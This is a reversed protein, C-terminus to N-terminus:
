GELITVENNKKALHLTDFFYRHLFVKLDQNQYRTTVDENMLEEIEKWEVKLIETNDVQKLNPTEKIVIPYYITNNIRKFVYSKQIINYRIGTEEFLERSACNSYVRDKEEMHGKPLGWQEFGYKEYMSKNCVCLVKTMDENFAIVGCRTDKLSLKQSKINFHKFKDDNSTSKNSNNKQIFGYTGSYVGKNKCNDWLNSNRRDKKKYSGFSKYSNHKHSPEIVRRDKVRWSM